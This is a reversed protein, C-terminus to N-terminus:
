LICYNSFYCFSFNEVGHWDCLKFILRVGISQMSDLKKLKAEEKEETKIEKIRNENSEISKVSVKM